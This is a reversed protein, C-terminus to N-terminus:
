EEDGYDMAAIDSLCKNCLCEYECGHSTTNTQVRTVALRRPHYDCRTGDPVNLRDGDRGGPINSEHLNM